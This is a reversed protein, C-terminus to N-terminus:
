CKRTALFLYMHPAPPVEVSPRPCKTASHGMTVMSLYVNPNGTLRVHQHKRKKLIQTRSLGFYDVVVGRQSGRYDSEGVSKFTVVYHPNPFRVVEESM